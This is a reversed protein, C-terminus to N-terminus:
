RLWDPCPLRASGAVHLPVQRALQWGGGAPTLIAPQPVSFARQDITGGGEIGIRGPALTLTTKLDFARGRSGAFALHVVGQGARLRADALVVVKASALSRVRLEWGPRSVSTAM